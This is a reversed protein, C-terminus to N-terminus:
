SSAMRYRDVAKCLRQLPLNAGPPDRRADMDAVLAIAAKVIEQSREADTVFGPCTRGGCRCPTAPMLADRLQRILNRMEARQANARANQCIVIGLAAWCVALSLATM